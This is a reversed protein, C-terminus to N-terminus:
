FFNRGKIIKTRVKHWFSKMLDHGLLNEKTLESYEHIFNRGGSNNVADETKHM